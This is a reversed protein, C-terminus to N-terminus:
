EDKFVLKGTALSRDLDTEPVAKHVLNQHCDICTARSGRLEEHAAKGEPVVPRPDRHCGRCTRSDDRKMAMRAHQAMELRRENFKAVTSYDRTFERVLDRSGDVVHAWVARHLNEAGQPIHCQKCDPDVGLAGFHGSKRLEEAPYSMSHCSTCFRTTSVAAEGAVLAIALAIGAGLGLLFVSWRRATM